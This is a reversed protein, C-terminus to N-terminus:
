RLLFLSPSPSSFVYSSCHPLTHSFLSLITTISFLSLFSLSHRYSTRCRRKRAPNSSHLRNNGREGQLGGEERGRGKRKGRKTERGHNRQPMNNKEKRQKKGKQRMNDGEKGTRKSERKREWASQSENTSVTVPLM